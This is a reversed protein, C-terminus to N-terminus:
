RDQSREEALNMKRRIDARPDWCRFQYHTKTEYGLRSCRMDIRGGTRQIRFHQCTACCHYSKPM